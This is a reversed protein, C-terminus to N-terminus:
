PRAGRLIASMRGPLRPRRAGRFLLCALGGVVAAAAIRTPWIAWFDRRRLTALLQDKSAQNESFSIAVGSWEEVFESFPHLTAGAPPDILVVGEPHLGILVVYHSSESQRARTKFHVIAPLPLTPLDGRALRVSIPKLGLKTAARELDAISSDGNARPAIEEELTPLTTAVGNMKAVVFLCNLGCARFPSLNVTASTEAAAFCWPALLAPPLAAVVAFASLKWLNTPIAFQLNM